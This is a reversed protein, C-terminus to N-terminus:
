GEGRLVESYMRKAKKAARDAGEVLEWEEGETDLADCTMDGSPGEVFEFEIYLDDAVMDAEVNEFAVNVESLEVEEDQSLLDSYAACSDCSNEIEEMDEEYDFMEDTYYAKKVKRVRGPIPQSPKAAVVARAMKREGVPNRRPEREKTVKSPKARRVRVQGNVQSVFPTRPNPMCKVM